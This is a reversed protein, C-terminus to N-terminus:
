AFTLGHDALPLSRYRTGTARFLANALAPATAAVGEEGVGGMRGGTELVTVEFAPAGAMTMLTLDHFNSQEVAGGAITVKGATAATLGFIVGGEVQRKVSEPNVCLGCDIAFWVKHLAVAAGDVGIEIVMASSSGNSRSLAVGRFVGKALPAGWGAATAVANLVGL